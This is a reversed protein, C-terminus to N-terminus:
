VFVVIILVFVILVAVFLLPVSLLFRPPMYRMYAEVLKALAPAADPPVMISHFPYHIQHLFYWISGFILYGNLAGVITGLLTDTVLGRIKSTKAAVLSARPTQYGFFTLVGLVALRFWFTRMDAPSPEPANAPILPELPSPLAAGASEAAQPHQFQFPPAATQDSGVWPTYTEVVWILLFALVVSASVLWERAWGRVFGIFALLFVMLWFAGVMSLM